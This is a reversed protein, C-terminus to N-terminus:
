ETFVRLFKVACLIKHIGFKYLFTWAEVKNNPSQELEEGNKIFISRFGSKQETRFTETINKLNQQNKEHYKNKM